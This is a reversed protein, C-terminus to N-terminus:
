DRWATAAKANLEDLEALAHTKADRWGDDTATGAAAVRAGIALRRQRLDAIAAEARDRAVGTKTAAKTQMRDLYADWRHLEAEVAGTFQEETAALEAAMRHEAIELSIDLQELRGAVAAAETRGSARAAEEDGHLADVYRQMRSRANATGEQARVELRAIRRRVDSLREETATAM